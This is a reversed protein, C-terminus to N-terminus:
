RRPRTIAAIVILVGFIILILPWASPLNPVFAELLSFLGFLVLAVGIFPLFWPRPVGFCDGERDRRGRQDDPPPPVSRTPVIERGGVAEGENM